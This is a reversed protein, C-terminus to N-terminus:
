KGLKKLITGYLKRTALYAIALCAVIAIGVLFYALAQLGFLFYVVLLCFLALIVNSAYWVIKFLFVADGNDRHAAPEDSSM